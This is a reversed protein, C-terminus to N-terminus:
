DTYVRFVSVLELGTLADRFVLQLLEGIIRDEVFSLRTERAGNERAAVLCVEKFLADGYVPYAVPLGDFFARHSPRNGQRHLLYDGPDDTAGRPGWYPLLLADDAGLRLVVATGRTQLLWAPRGGIEARVVAEASM